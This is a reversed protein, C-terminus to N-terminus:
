AKKWRGEKKAKHIAALTNVTCMVVFCVALIKGVKKAAEENGEGKILGILGKVLSMLMAPCKKLLELVKEM